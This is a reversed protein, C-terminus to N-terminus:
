QETTTPTLIENVLDMLEDDTVQELVEKSVGAEALLQRIQETTLDKIDTVPLNVNQAPAAPSNQSQQESLIESYIQLLDEDSYADLEAASVGAQKLFERLQAPTLQGSLLLNSGSTDSSSQGPIVIGPSIQNWAAFCNQGEPCSPDTGRAIEGGDNIGDSDTDSLYPSSNYIYLEDYDSLGDADTDKQSLGLLDDPNAEAIPTNVPRIFYKNINSKFQFFGLVLAALGFFLIAGSLLKEVRKSDSFYEKLSRRSQNKAKDEHYIEELITLNEKNKGPVAM